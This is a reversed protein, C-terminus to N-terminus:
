LLKELQLLLDNLAYVINPSNIDRIRDNTKNIAFDTRVMAIAVMLTHANKYSHENSYALWYLKRSNELRTEFVSRGPRFNWDDVYDQNIDYIRQLEFRYADLPDASVPTFFLVLLLLIYKM